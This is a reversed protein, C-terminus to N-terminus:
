PCTEGPILSLRSHRLQDFSHHTGIHIPQQGTLAIWRELCVDVYRPDLEIGYGRRHTRHAALVTTGSGLFGDFVIDGHATVDKMADMVLAIPKVTPHVALAADREKSFSNMGAYQWVNTRHRGHRGLEVNNTHSSHGKKLIFVLEHQSRYLSGMGANTKVWVALNLLTLGLAEYAETLEKIHRWDMCVYMMAGAASTSLAASISEQLFATFQACSMEGSAMKFEEHCHKGLGSVM